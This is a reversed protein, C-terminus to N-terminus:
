VGIMAYLYRLIVGLSIASVAGVGKIFSRSKELSSIRNVADSRLKKIEKIDYHLEELKALIYGIDQNSM